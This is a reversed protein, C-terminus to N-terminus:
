GSAVPYDWNSYRFYFTLQDGPLSWTHFSNKESRDGIYIATTPWPRVFNAAYNKFSVETNKSTVLCSQIDGLQGSNTEYLCTQVFQIVFVNKAQQFCYRYASM